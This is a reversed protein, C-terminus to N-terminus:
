KVEEENDVDNEDKEEIDLIDFDIKINFKKKTFDLDDLYQYTGDDLSQALTEFTRSRLKEDIIGYRVKYKRGGKDALILFSLKSEIISFILPLCLVATLVSISLASLTIFGYSILLGFLAMAILIFIIFNKCGKSTM